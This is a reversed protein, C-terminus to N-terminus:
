FCTGTTLPVPVTVISGNPLLQEFPTSPPYGYFCQKLFAQGGPWPALLAAVYRYGYFGQPISPMTFLNNPPEQCAVYVNASSYEVVGPNLPGNVLEFAIEAIGVCSVGLLDYRLDMNPYVAQFQVYFVPLDFFIGSGQSTYVAFDQRMGQLRWTYAGAPLSTFMAGPIGNSAVCPVDFTLFGEPGDLEVRIRDVNARLCGQNTSYDNTFYVNGDMDRFNWYFTVDTWSGTYPPPAVPSPGCAAMALVLSSALVAATTKM